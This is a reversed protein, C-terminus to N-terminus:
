GNDDLNKYYDSWLQGTSGLGNGGGYLNQAGSNTQQSYRKYADGYKQAENYDFARLNEDRLDKNADLLLQSNKMKQEADMALLNRFSDNASGFANTINGLGQGSALGAQITSGLGREISDTYWNKASSPLGQSALQGAFQQNYQINPDVEYVPRNQELENLKKNGHIMQGLGYFTKFLDLGTSIGLSVPNLSDALGM